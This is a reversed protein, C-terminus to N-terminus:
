KFNFNEVDLNQGCSAPRRKTFHDGPDLVCLFCLIEQNRLFFNTKPLYPRFCLTVFNIKHSLFLCVSVSLCLCVSLCFSLSLFEFLPVSLYHSLSGTYRYSCKNKFPDFLRTWSNLIGSERSYMPTMSYSCTVYSQRAYIDRINANGNTSTM